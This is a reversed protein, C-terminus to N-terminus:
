TFYSREIYGSFLRSYKNKFKSLKTKRSKEQSNIVADLM